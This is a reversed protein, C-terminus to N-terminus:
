EGGSPPCHQKVQIAPPASVPRGPVSYGDAYDPVPDPDDGNDIERAGVMQPGPLVLRAHETSPCRGSRTAANLSTYEMSWALGFVAVMLDRCQAATEAIVTAHKDALSMGTFPCVHGYGFAYVRTVLTPPPEGIDTPTAVNMDM